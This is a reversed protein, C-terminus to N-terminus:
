SSKKMFDKNQMVLSYKFNIKTESLTYDFYREVKMKVSNRKM